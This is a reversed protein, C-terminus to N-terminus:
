SSPCASPKSAGPFLCADSRRPPQGGVVVIRTYKGITGRRRVFLEIVTGAGFRHELKRLRVSQVGHRAAATKVVNGRPCGGGRCHAVIRAGSPADVVFKTFTVGHSAVRGSFVVIPFPVLWPPQSAPHGAPSVVVTRWTTQTAGRDDTVRLGIAYTGPASPTWTATSGSGDVFWGNGHLDWRQAVNEGTSTSTFTIPQGAVPAAPSYTFSASPAPPAPAAPPTPAPSVNVAAFFYSTTGNADTVRLTVAHAGPTGFSSPPNPGFSHSDLKWAKTLPTAGGTSTDTFTVSQGVTPNSPGYTFGAVPYAYVAIDHTVTRVFGTGDKVQLEVTHTGTTTPTWSPTSADSFAAPETTDQWTYTLNDGATTSTLTRAQGAYTPTDPVAFTAHPLVTITQSGSTSSDVDLGITHDGTTAPTWTPNQAAPDDFTTAGDPSDSWSYTSGTSNATLPLGVDVEAETSPTFDGALASSALVLLLAAALAAALPFVRRTPPSLLPVGQAKRNGAV